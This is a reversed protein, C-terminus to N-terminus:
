FSFRGRNLIDNPDLALKVARMSKVDTPTAAWASIESRMEEPCHLVTM